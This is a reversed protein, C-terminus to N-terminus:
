KAKLDENYQDINMDESAKSDEMPIKYGKHYREYDVIEREAKEKSSGVRGESSMNMMSIMPGFTAFTSRKQKMRRDGRAVPSQLRGGPKEKHSITRQQESRKAYYGIVADRISEGDQLWTPRFRNYENKVCKHTM